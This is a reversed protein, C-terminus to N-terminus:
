HKTEIKKELEMNYRINNSIYFSINRIYKIISVSNQCINKLGKFM